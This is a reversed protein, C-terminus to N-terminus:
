FPMTVHYNNFSNWRIHNSNNKHYGLIADILYVHVLFFLLANEFMCPFHGHVLFLKSLFISFVFKDNEGTFLFIQFSTLFTLPAVLGNPLNTKHRDRGSHLMFKQVIGVM